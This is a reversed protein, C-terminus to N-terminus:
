ESMLFKLLFYRLSITEEDVYIKYPTSSSTEMLVNKQRCFIHLADEEMEYYLKKEKHMMLYKDREVQNVQPKKVPSVGTEMKLLVLPIHPDDHRTHLMKIICPLRLVMKEHM